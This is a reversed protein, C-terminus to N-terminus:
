CVKIKFKEHQPTVKHFTPPITRLDNLWSFVVRGAPYVATLVAVAQVIMNIYTIISHIIVSHIIISHIIMNYIIMSYIIMSYIIMRCIIMRYIIMRYIIMCYIIMSYIIMHYIIMRYIIMRYINICYIIIYSVQAAAKPGATESLTRSVVLNIIPRSTVQVVRVMVLPILFWITSAV